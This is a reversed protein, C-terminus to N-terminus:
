AGQTERLRAWVLDGWARTMPRWAAILAAQAEEVDLVLPSGNPVIRRAETALAYLYSYASEGEFGWWETEQLDSSCM